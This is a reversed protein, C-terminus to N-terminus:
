VAKGRASNKAFKARARELGTPGFEKRLLDVGERTGYIQEMYDRYTSIEPLSPFELDENM